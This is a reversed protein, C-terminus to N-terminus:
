DTAASLIQGAPQQVLIATKLDLGASPLSFAVADGTWGGLRRLEHVVHSHPLTHGSNEGRRVATEVVKPDYRVLWVDAPGRRWSAAGIGAVDSGLTV